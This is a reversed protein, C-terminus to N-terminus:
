EATLLVYMADAPFTLRLRGDAFATEAAGAPLLNMDLRTAKRLTGGPLTVVVRAKEVQWPAKGHALIEEGRLAAGDKPKITTPRTKWGTPRATTGVQVLVRTSTALPRGDLSVALVAAYDNAAEIQLTSLAFRKQKGVFGCVGQAQPADLTCLGRDYELRLQGTASTVTKKSRDIYRGLEAMKTQGAVGYRAEVPGVWFALPDIGATQRPRAPGDGADRNPDYGPDESIAPMARGFVDALARQEVVVPDAKAVLGKRFMWAAAPFNGVIQPTAIVWKGISDAFGNASSPSRWQTEGTAFWYFADVGTLSQYAAVLFPAEAQHGIPPVWSSEPILMPHGAVQKVTLPFQRPQLLASTDVFSDGAVIAWGQWKGQHLPSFYRNVAIVENATYSWREADLMRVNDATRWNGANILQRCGLEDRVSALALPWKSRKSSEESRQVELLVAGRAWGAQEVVVVLDMDFRRAGPATPVSSTVRVIDAASPEWRADGSVGWVLAPALAPRDRFVRVLGEHQISPTAM